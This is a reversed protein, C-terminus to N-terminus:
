LISVVKSCGKSERGRLLSPANGCSLMEKILEASATIDGDSLCLTGDNLMLGDRKMKMYLSDIEGHLGKRFLGLMMTTYTVVDPKVGKVGLSCFLGWAEEVMGAKCMGQIITTYTVIDLGMEKKQMDEFIVLARELEGNDCLGGLLINYTWIDPSDM